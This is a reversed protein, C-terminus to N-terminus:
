SIIGPDRSEIIDRDALQSEKLTSLLNNRLPTGKKTLLKRLEPVHKMVVNLWDLMKMVKGKKTKVPEYYRCHEGIFDCGEKALVMDGTKPDRERVIGQSKAYEIVYEIALEIPTKKEKDSEEESSRTSLATLSRGHQLIM